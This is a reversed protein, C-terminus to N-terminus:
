RIASPLIKAIELGTSSEIILSRLLLSASATPIAVCRALRRIVLRTELGPDSGRSQNRM